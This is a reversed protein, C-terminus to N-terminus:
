CYKCDSRCKRRFHLYKRYMRKVANKSQKDRKAIRLCGDQPCETQTTVTNVSKIELETEAKVDTAENDGGGIEAIEADDCNGDKVGPDVAEESDEQRTGSHLFGAM